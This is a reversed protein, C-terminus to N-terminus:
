SFLMARGWRKYILPPLKKGRGESNCIGKVREEEVYLNEREREREREECWFRVLYLEWIRKDIYRRECIFSSKKRIRGAREAGKGVRKGRRNAGRVCGLGLKERIPRIECALRRIERKEWVLKLVALPTQQM